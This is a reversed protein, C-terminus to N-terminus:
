SPAHDTAKLGKVRELVLSLIFVSGKGKEVENYLERFPIMANHARLKSYHKKFNKIM